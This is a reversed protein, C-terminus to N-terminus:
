NFTLTTNLKLSYIYMTLYKNERKERTHFTAIDHSNQHLLILKTDPRYQAVYSNVSPEQRRYKARRFRPRRFTEQPIGIYRSKRISQIKLGMTWKSQTMCIIIHSMGENQKM